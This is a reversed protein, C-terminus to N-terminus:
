SVEKKTTLLSDYVGVTPGGFLREFLLAALTFFYFMIHVYSESVEKDSGVMTPPSSARLRVSKQPMGKM